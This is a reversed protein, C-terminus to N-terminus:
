LIHRDKLTTHRHIIEQHEQIEAIIGIVYWWCESSLIPYNSEKTMQLVKGRM